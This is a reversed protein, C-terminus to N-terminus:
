HAVHTPPTPLFYPCTLVSTYHPLPTVSCEKGGGRHGGRRGSGLWHHRFGQPMARCLLLAHLPLAGLLSQLPFLEGLQDLLRGVKDEQEQQLDTLHQQQHRRGQPQAPRGMTEVVRAEVRRVAAAAAAAAV